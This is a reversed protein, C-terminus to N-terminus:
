ESDILGEIATKAQAYTRNPTNPLGSVRSQFNALNTSAAVETKFSQLWSRLVNIEDVNLKGLARIVRGMHDISDYIEKAMQKALAISQALEAADVANKETQDMESIVNGIRKLYKIPVTMLLNALTSYDTSSTNGDHFVISNTRTAFELGDANLDASVVKDAGDHIIGIAM